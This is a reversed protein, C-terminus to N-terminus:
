EGHVSVVLVDVELPLLLGRLWVTFTCPPSRAGRVPDARRVVAHVPRAFLAERLSLREHAGSIGPTPHQQDM